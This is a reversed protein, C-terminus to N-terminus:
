TVRPSSQIPVKKHVLPQGTQRSKLLEHVDQDIYSVLCRRQDGPSLPAWTAVGHLFSRKFFMPFLRPGLAATVGLEPLLFNGGIYNGFTISTEVLDPDSNSDKHLGTASGILISMSAFINRINAHASNTAPMEQCLRQVVWELFDYIKPTVVKAAANVHAFVPDLDHFFNHQM